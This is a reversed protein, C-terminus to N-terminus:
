TPRERGDNESLINVVDAILGESKYNDYPQVNQFVEHTSFGVMVLIPAVAIHEM